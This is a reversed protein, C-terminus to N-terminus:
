MSDTCKTEFLQIEVPMKEERGELTSFTAFKFLSSAEFTPLYASISLASQGYALSTLSSYPLLIDRKRLKPNRIATNIEM